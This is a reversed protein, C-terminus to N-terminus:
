FWSAFMPDNGRISQEVIKRALRYDAMYGRHYKRLKFANEIVMKGAKLIRERDYGRALHIFWECYYPVNTKYYKIAFAAAKPTFYGLSEAILHATIRPYKKMIDVVDMKEWNKTKTATALM